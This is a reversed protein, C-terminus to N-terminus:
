SAGATKDVMVPLQDPENSSPLGLLMPIEDAPTTVPELRPQVNEPVTAGRPDQFFIKLTEIVNPLEPHKNGPCDTEPMPM